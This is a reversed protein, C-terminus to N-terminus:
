SSRRRQPILFDKGHQARRGKWVRKGNKTIANDEAKIGDAERPRCVSALILLYIDAAKQNKMRPLTELVRKRSEANLNSDRVDPLPDQWRRDEGEPRVPKDERPGLGNPQASPDRVTPASSPRPFTRRSM